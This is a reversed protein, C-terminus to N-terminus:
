LIIVLLWASWQFSFLQFFTVSRCAHIGLEELQYNEYVLLYHDTNWWFLTMTDSMVLFLYFVFTPVTRLKQQSCVVFCLVNGISGIVMIAVSYIAIVRLIVEEAEM